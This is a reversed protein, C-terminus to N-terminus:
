YMLDARQVNAYNNAPVYSVKAKLYYNEAIKVNWLSPLSLGNTNQFNLEFIIIRFQNIIKM